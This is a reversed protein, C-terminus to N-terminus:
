TLRLQDSQADHAGEAALRGCLGHRPSKKKGGVFTWLGARSEYSWCPGGADNLMAIFEPRVFDRRGLYPVARNSTGSRVLTKPVCM